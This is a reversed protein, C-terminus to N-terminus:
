RSLDRLMSFLSDKPKAIGVKIKYDEAFFRRLSEQLEEKPLGRIVATAKKIVFPHIGHSAPVAKGTEGYHKVTLLTRAHNSLYSFLGFDDHGQNLLGLLTRLALRPHSFFTDGLQFISEEPLKTKVEKFEQTRQCLPRVAALEKTGLERDWLVILVNPDNKAGELIEPLEDPKPSLSFYKIVVLKKSSFLSGTELAQRIKEWGDEEADFRHLNFDAGAKKRYEETIENLKQISRQTDSGYLLYIM